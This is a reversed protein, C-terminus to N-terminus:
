TIQDWKAQSKILDINKPMVTIASGSHYTKGTNRGRLTSSAENYVFYDKSLASVHLFGEVMIEPIEFVIGRGTVKIVLADYQVYPDKEKAAAIYRLKKLIKVANEARSSIREQESCAETVNDLDEDSIKTEEFLIRQVVLDSYRRIPSTFHCYYELGLGYHGINEASYFAIPMSKIFCIALHRAQETNEIENFMKQLEESTPRSSVKFGLATATEVLASFNQESPEPHIRFPLKKELGSIHKAIVENAKLMCEEVLQHTIDYEIFEMGTPVGDDDVIVRVEPLAFEVCGRESRKKKFIHCLAELNKLLPAYQSELKGDLVEKAERYTFRKKSRIVSRVIKYDVLNGEGDYEMLVSATLREVDPKLSCINNSLQYPLMPICNGPFYTSNCRLFAEQDLATGAKVYNAVDAIHVSLHYHGKEDIRLSLADDFDKSDTPDITITEMDRFDERSNLDEELVTNPLKEVEKIVNKPFASRINYEEGAVAIDYSAESINGMHKHVSCSTEAGDDGWEEVDLVVRDGLILERGKPNMVVVRHADGLLPVHALIDGDSAKVITGVLHKKSRKVIEVVRGEPGKESVIDYVEVSVDDGDIAGSMRSKPIFIDKDYGEVGVFGFGRPHARMIGALQREKDDKNKVM